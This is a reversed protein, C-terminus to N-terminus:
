RKWHELLTGIARLVDDLVEPPPAPLHLYPEGTKEDRRVLGNGETRSPTKGRSSAALESLLSLGSALLGALPDSSGAAIAPGTLSPETEASTDTDTKDITKRVPSSSRSSAAAAEAEAEERAEAGTPAPISQTATEVTEMFRKLRGGGLFVEKAGGDLVGSFLSKKFQLLSLMGEEIAGKAVFNVVQVSRQQGLRHVRGVRQELIAPNWPLDLNLVINAHQLNLGVGGADTSLLLRCDPDDRFRDIIKGRQTGSLGGHFLAHGVKRAEVQYKMLEHMRLWQSFAVVKTGPEELVEDLVTAVEGVKHGSDTEPDILYTSDCVMRMRQLAIMLRRQDAESLFHYRRWKQVIRAAIEQNEAHIARQPETMPVFVHNDIREPLQALVESKRRRILIPELTKGIRDLDQYGIVKGVDDVVQHDHLLKYTPGLRHQDVFQVISILEELRNELPTGTLVIAYPSEIRKVSRATRTSWNKIRQAEDLVVLDPGWSAIADLDAHVTDYNTIKFFPGSAAFARSRDPISGSIVLASRESMREIERLWQYKLSTPCVILVREVGFLRAMVEASAIAQITKGLGMDDGLLCRGAKAAFLVGDRQYDYLPVRVLEKFLASRRGSPFAKAVQARRAEADRHEAIFSLVADDCRLEHDFSGARQLFQEFSAIAELGLIGGEGFTSDALQIVDAPCEAGPRFRATRQSGYQLVVESFPPDFGERLTKATKRNRSLKALVFEVHKCTGLENTLFDPCTCRNEGPDTGRIRVQYTRGSSPNTVSFESFVPHDGVNKLRFDQERGFQRRLEVQWQELSMSPPQKTRSLSPPKRRVVVKRKKGTSVNTDSRKSPASM